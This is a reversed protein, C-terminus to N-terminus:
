WLIFNPVRKKWRVRKGLQCKGNCYAQNLATLHYLVFNVSFHKTFCAVIEPFISKPRENVHASSIFIILKRDVVISLSGREGYFLLSKFTVDMLTIQLYILKHAAHIDQIFWCLKSSSLPSNILCDLLHQLNGLVKQLSQTIDLGHCQVTISM